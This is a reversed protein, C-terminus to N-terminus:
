RGSPATEAYRLSLRRAAPLTLSEKTNVDFPLKIVSHLDLWWRGGATDLFRAPITDPDGIADVVYPPQLSRFNVTIAEGAFRIASLSSLRQGNIAVAEAGSEWLGNVLKQLDRDQVQQKSSTANPVDDVVVRVGPGSVSVAASAVGLATIRSQLARGTSTAGLLQQQQRAVERQVAAIRDRRDTLAAKSDNVRTVLFQKSSANESANRSTQVAAIAVLAGFMALAVVAAAGSRRRPAEPQERRLRSVHAYDEDLSTATIHELLGPHPGSSM